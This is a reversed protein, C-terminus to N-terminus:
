VCNSDINDTAKDTKRAESAKKNETVIDSDGIGSNPAQSNDASVATIDNVPRVTGVSLLKAAAANEADRLSDIKVASRVAFKRLRRAKAIANNGPIYDIQFRKALLDRSNQTVERGLNQEIYYALFSEFAMVDRLSYATRIQQATVEFSPAGNALTKLIRTAPLLFGQASLYVSLLLLFDEDTKLKYVAKSLAAERSKYKTIYIAYLVASYYASHKKKLVRLLSMGRKIDGAGVFAIAALAGYKDDDIIDTYLYSYNVASESFNGMILQAEAYVSYGYEKDPRLRKYEDAYAAVAHYEQLLSELDILLYLAPMYEPDLDHSKRTMELASLYQKRKYNAYGKYYWYQESSDKAPYREIVTEAEDYRGTEILCSAQDFLNDFLYFEGALKGYAKAAREFDPLSVYSEAYKMIAVPDNPRAKIMLEAIECAKDSQKKILYLDILRSYAGPYLNDHVSLIGRMLDIAKDYESKKVLLDAANDYVAWARMLLNRDTLKDCEEIAALYDALAKDTAGLLHYSYGRRSLATFRSKADVASNLVASWRLINNEPESKKVDYEYETEEIDAAVIVYEGSDPPKPYDIMGFDTILVTPKGEANLGIYSRFQGDGWGTSFVAYNHGFMNFAERTQGDLIIRGSLPHTEEKIHKIYEAYAAADAFCCVGSSVPTSIADADDNLRLLARKDTYAPVFRVAREFGFQLGAYAIREGSDTMCGFYFPYGLPTFDCDFQAYRHAASYPDFLVIKNCDFQLFDLRCYRLKVGAAEGETFLASLDIPAYYKSHPIRVSKKM